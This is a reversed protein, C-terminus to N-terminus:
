RSGLVKNVIKSWGLKDGTYVHLKRKLIKMKTLHEASTRSTFMVADNEMREILTILTKMENTKWCYTEM